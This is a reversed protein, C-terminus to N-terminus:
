TPRAHRGELVYFLSVVGVTIAVDALNFAPWLPVKVFDTVAHSITRDILNGAAGGLLLGTPVWAYRRHRNRAFFVLLVAVVAITVLVLVPGGQEFLGFAIGRNRVDVLSIGPLVSDEGGPGVAGRALAKTAQDAGVVLLTLAVARATVNV